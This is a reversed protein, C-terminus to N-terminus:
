DGLVKKASLSLALVSIIIMLMTLETPLIGLASFILALPLSILIGVHFDKKCIAFVVAMVCVFMTMGALTTDGSFFSNAIAQQIQVLSIM